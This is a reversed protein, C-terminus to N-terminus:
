LGFAAAYRVSRAHRLAGPALELAMFAPGSFPASLHSAADASFGFRPYYDPHGLVIVTAVGRARCAELGHRILASGVGARQHSPLVAVPALAAAPIAKGGGDDVALPSFLIHGVITGATIAVFEVLADGDDRLRDILEGEDDQGFAARNVTRIAEVDVPTAERVFIDSQPMTPIPLPKAPKARCLMHVPCNSNPTHALTSEFASVM